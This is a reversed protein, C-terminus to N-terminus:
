EKDRSTATPFVSLEAAALKKQDDEPSPFLHGYTDYTTTIKQHGMIVQVRKPSFGQEIFLSAAFHRLAYVSPYRPVKGDARRMMRLINVGRQKERGQSTLVGRAVLERAIRYAGSRHPGTKGIGQEQIERIIPLIKQAHQARKQSRPQALIKTPDDAFMGIKIQVRQFNEHVVMHGIVHLKDGRFVLGTPKRRTPEVVNSAMPPFARQWLTDMVMPSMPIQRQAAETKPELIEGWRNSGRHINIVRKKFVIDEWHLARIEGVRLGTFAMVLFVDRQWKKPANTLILQMEEKTPIDLGIFKKRRMPPAPKVAEMVDVVSQNCLRRRKAFKVLEKFAELARHAASPTVERAVDEFFNWVNQETLRSLKVNDIGASRLRGINNSFTEMSSRRCYIEKNKAWLNIADNVTISNHDPTHVGEKVEVQTKSLWDDADRKLEFTKIHRKGDQDFYDAVWRTKEKGGSIWTRKRVKAM